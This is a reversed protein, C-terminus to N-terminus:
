TCTSLKTSERYKPICMNVYITVSLKPLVAVAILATCTTGSITDGIMVKCPGFLMVMGNLVVYASGPYVAVSSTSPLIVDLTMTDPVTSVSVGPM